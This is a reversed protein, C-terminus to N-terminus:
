AAPRQCAGAATMATRADALVSTVTADRPPLGCHRALEAEVYALPHDAGARAAAISGRAAAILRAYEARLLALALKADAAPDPLQRRDGSPPSAAPAGAADGDLYQGATKGATLTVEAGCGPRRSAAPHPGSAAPGCGCSKQTLESGM